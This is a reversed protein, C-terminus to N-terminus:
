PIKRLLKQFNLRMHICKWQSLFIGIRNSKMYGDTKLHSAIFHFHGCFIDKESSQITRSLRELHAKSDAFASYNSMTQQIDFRAENHPILEVEYQSLTLHCLCFSCVKAWHPRGGVTKM